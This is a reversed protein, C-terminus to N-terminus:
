ATQEIYLDNLLTQDVSKSEIRETYYVPSDDYACGIHVDDSPKVQSGPITNYQLLTVSGDSQEAVTVIENGKWLYGLPLHDGERAAIYIDNRIALIPYYKEPLTNTDSMDLLEGESIYDFTDVDLGFVDQVVRKLPEMKGAGMPVYANHELLDFSKRGRVDNATEISLAKVDLAATEDATADFSYTGNIIKFPPHYDAYYPLSDFGNIYWERFQERTPRSISVSVMPGETGDPYIYVITDIDDLVAIARLSAEKLFQDFIQEFSDAEILYSLSRREASDYNKMSDYNNMRFVLTSGERELDVAYYPLVERIGTEYLLGNCNELVEISTDLDSVSTGMNYVMDAREWTLWDQLRLQWALFESDKLLGPFRISHSFAQDGIDMGLSGDSCAYLTYFVNQPDFLQVAKEFGPMTILDNTGCSVDENSPITDPNRSLISVLDQVMDSSLEVGRAASIGDEDLSYLVETVTGETVSDLGSIDEGFSPEFKAWSVANIRCPDGDQIKDIYIVMVTDGVAFPLEDLNDKSFAIREIGDLRSDYPIHLEASPPLPEIVVTESDLEVITGVVSIEGGAGCSSLIVFCFSLLLLLLIRRTKIVKM